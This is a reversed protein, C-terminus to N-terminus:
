GRRLALSRKNLKVKIANETKVKNEEEFSSLFTQPHSLKHKLKDNHKLNTNWRSSVNVSILIDTKRKLYQSIISSINVPNSQAPRLKKSSPPIPPSKM